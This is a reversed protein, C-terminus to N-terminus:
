SLPEVEVRLQSYQLDAGHFEVLYDAAIVGGTRYDLTSRFSRGLVALELIGWPTRYATVHRVGEECVIMSTFTGHRSVTLLDPERSSVTIEVEAPDTPSEEGYRVSLQVYGGPLNRKEMRGVTRIVVSDDEEPEGLSRIMNELTEWLGASDGGSGEGGDGADERYEEEPPFGYGDSDRDIIDDVAYDLAEPANEPTVQGVEERPPIFGPRTGFLSPEGGLGFPANVGTQRATLTIRVSRSASPIDAYLDYPVM